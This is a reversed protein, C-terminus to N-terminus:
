TTRHPAMLQVWHDNHTGELKPYDIIKHEKSLQIHNWKPPNHQLFSTIPCVSTLFNFDLSKDDVSAFEAM